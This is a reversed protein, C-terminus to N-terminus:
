RNIQTHPMLFLNQEGQGLEVARAARQGRSGLQQRILIKQVTPSSLLVNHRRLEDVLKCCGMTPNRLAVEIVKAAVEPPTTQPHAKRCSISTSNLIPQRFWVNTQYGFMSDPRNTSAPKDVYTHKM